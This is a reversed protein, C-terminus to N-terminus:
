DYKKRQPVIVPGANKFGITSGHKAMEESTILWVVPLVRKTEEEFPIFLYNDGYRKILLFEQEGRDITGYRIKREASDAGMTQAFWMAMFGSVLVLMLLSGFRAGFRELFESESKKEFRLCEAEIIKTWWGGWKSKLGIPKIIDRYVFFLAIPVIVVLSAILESRNRALFIFPLFMVAFYVYRGVFMISDRKKHCAVWGFVFFVIALSTLTSAGVGVIGAMDFGVMEESIGFYALYGKEFRYYIGYGFFTALAIVILESVYTGCDNKPLCTKEGMNSLYNIEPSM